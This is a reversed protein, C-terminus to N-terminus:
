RAPKENEPNLSQIRRRVLFFHILGIAEVVPALLMIIVGLTVINQNSVFEFMGIGAALLAIATRTYALLTQSNTLSTREFAMATREMAMATREEAMATRESSMETREYAMEDQTMDKSIEKTNM